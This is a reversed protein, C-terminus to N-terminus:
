WGSKLHIKGLNPINQMAPGNTKDKNKEDDCETKRNKRREEIKKKLWCHSM